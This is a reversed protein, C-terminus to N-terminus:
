PTSPPHTALGLQQLLQYIERAIHRKLCRVAKRRTPGQTARRELYDRTHHDSPSRTLAIHYLAANARRDGGRNLRRQRTNGSSAELPSIDCPAAFSAESHM